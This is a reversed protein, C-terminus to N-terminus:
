GQSMRNRYGRGIQSTLFSEGDLLVVEAGGLGIAIALAIRQGEGGSLTSWERAWMTREIGWEEAIRYPDLGGNGKNRPPPLSTSPYIPSKNQLKTNRSRLKNTHTPIQSVM